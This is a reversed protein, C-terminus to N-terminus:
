RPTLLRHFPEVRQGIREHVIVLPELPEDVPSDATPLPTRTGAAASGTTTASPSASTTRGDSITSAPGSATARNRSNKALRIQQPPMSSAGGSGVRMQPSESSGQRHCDEVRRRKTRWATSGHSAWALGEAAGVFTASVLSHPVPGIAFAGDGNDVVVREVGAGTGGTAEWVVM